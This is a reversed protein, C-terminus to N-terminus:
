ESILKFNNLIYEESCNSKLSRRIIYSGFYFVTFHNGKKGYHFHQIGDPWKELILLYRKFIFSYFLNGVKVKHSLM